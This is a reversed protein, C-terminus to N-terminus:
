GDSLAADAGQAGLRFLETPLLPVNKEPITVVVLDAGKM